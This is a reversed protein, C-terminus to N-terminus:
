FIGFVHMAGHSYFDKRFNLKRVNQFISWGIFVHTFIKHVICVPISTRFNQIFENIKSM